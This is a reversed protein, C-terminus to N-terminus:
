QMKRIRIENGSGTLNVAPMPIEANTYHYPYFEKPKIVLAAKAAQEMTMTCPLTEPLFAVDIYEIEKLEPISDADGAIHIRTGNLDLVFGIDRGKPHYQLHGHTINGVPTAQISINSKLDVIERIKMINVEIFSKSVSAKALNQTGNKNISAIAKPDFHIHHKHTILILDAKSFSHCDAYEGVPDIQIIHNDYDIMLSAHKIFAIRIKEGENAILTDTELNKM